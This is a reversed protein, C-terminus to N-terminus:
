PQEKKVKGSKSEEDKQLLLINYGEDLALQLFGYDFRCGPQFRPHNSYIVNPIIGGEDRYPRVNDKVMQAIIIKM